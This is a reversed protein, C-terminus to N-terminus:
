AKDITSLQSRYVVDLGNDLAIKKVCLIKWASM